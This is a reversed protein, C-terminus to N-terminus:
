EPSLLQQTSNGELFSNKGEGNVRTPSRPVENAVDIRITKRVPICKDSKDEDAFVTDRTHKGLTPSGNGSCSNSTSSPPSLCLSPGNLHSASVLQLPINQPRIGPIAFLPPPPYWQMATPAAANYPNCMSASTPHVAAMSAVNNWGPNMPLVWPPVPYCQLWNSANHNSLENGRTDINTVSSGCSIPEERRQVIVNSISDADTSRKHDRVNLMSHMSECLPNDPGFKLVTENDTSARHHGSLSTTEQRSVPIGDSNVIIQRYQSALHKNKRRGAGIPVNRMTGGATWYRQCNKCFHRPQNVNYNNFYCFKTDWSKCRPCQVIKDPKKLMKDQDADGTETDDEVPKSNVIPEKEQMNNGSEQKSDMSDSSNSLQETKEASLMEVLAKKTSNCTDMPPSNVPIRCEPLPIKWGFLKIGPHNKETETESMNM